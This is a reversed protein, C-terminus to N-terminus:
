RSVFRESSHSVHFLSLNNCYHSDLYWVMWIPSTLTHTRPELPIQTDFCPDRSRGFSHLFPPNCNWSAVARVDRTRASPIHTKLKSLNEERSKASSQSRRVRTPATIYIASTFVPPRRARLQPLRRRIAAAAGCVGRVVLGDARWLVRVTM